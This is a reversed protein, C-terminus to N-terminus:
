PVKGAQRLIDGIMIQALVASLQFPDPIRNAGPIDHSLAGAVCLRAPLFRNTLPWGPRREQHNEFAPNLVLAVKKFARPTFVALFEPMVLTQRCTQKEATETQRDHRERQM